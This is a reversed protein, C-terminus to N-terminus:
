YKVAKLNGSVCAISLATIGSNNQINTRAGKKLLYFIIKNRRKGTSIILATSGNISKHNIDYGKKVANKIKKLSGILAARIIPNAQKLEVFFLYKAIKYHRNKNAYSRASNQTKDLIGAKAGKNVLYKVADFHGFWAAYMVPTKGMKDRVNIKAGKKIFLRIFNMRGHKCAVILAPVKHVDRANIKAGKSVLLSAINYFGKYTSIMLATKKYTGGINIDAGRSILYKVVNIKGTWVALSVATFGAQFRANIDAGRNLASKILAINGSVAGKYLDKNPITYALVQISLILIIIILKKM